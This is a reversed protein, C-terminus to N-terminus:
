QKGICFKSRKGMMPTIYGEVTETKNFGNENYSILISCDNKVKIWVTESEGLRLQKIYKKDCGYVFIDKIDHRTCNTFEIINTSLLFSASWCYFLMIPINLLILVSVILAKRDKEKIAKLVLTSFLNINIVGAFLIFGYGFLLMISDSTFYFIVFIISGILFSGVASIIGNRVSNEKTMKSLLKSGRMNLGCICVM